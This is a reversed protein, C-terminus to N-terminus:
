AKKHYMFPQPSLAAKYNQYNQLVHPESPTVSEERAAGSDLEVSPQEMALGARIPWGLRDRGSGLGTVSSSISFQGM